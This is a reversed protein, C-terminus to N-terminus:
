KQQGDAEFSRLKKLEKNSRIVMYIAMLLVFTCVATGTASTMIRRFNEQGETGFASLMATELTLMSVSASALSIAKSASFVPSNFKRYKVVNVIALTMATFTYAALAITTIFHHEFGHNFRTIFLVLGGLTINMLILVIGCFRYRLYEKKINKGVTDGRVDRLLFFRMLVLLFYYAALSYFWASGHWLGLGLQLAAYATNYILTGYLSLKVRLHADGSLRVVYKNETKVTKFFRIMNPIRFCVVMLTYASLAYSIYTVLHESGFYVLGFTMLAASAIVLVVILAVPPFIIGKFKRLDIM